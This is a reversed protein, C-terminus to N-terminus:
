TNDESITIQEAPADEPPADQSPTNGGSMGASVFGENLDILMSAAHDEVSVGFDLWSYDFEPKSRIVKGTVPDRQTPPYPAKRNLDFVYVPQGNHNIRMGQIRYRYGDKWNMLKYLRETLEPCTLDRSRRKEGRVVCWRVADCEGENCARIAMKRLTPNIHLLVHTANELKSICANNFTISKGRITMTPDFVSPIFDKRIVQYGNYSFSAEEALRRAEILEERSLGGYSPIQPPNSGQQPMPFFSQQGPPPQPAQYGGIMPQKQAQQNWSQNYDM